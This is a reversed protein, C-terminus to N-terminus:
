RNGLRLRLAHHFIQDRTQLGFLGPQYNNPPRLPFLEPINLCVRQYLQQASAMAPRAGGTLEYKDM